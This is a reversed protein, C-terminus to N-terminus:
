DYVDCHFLFEDDCNLLDNLVYNMRIRVDDHERADDDDDGSGNCSLYCCVVYHMHVRVYDGDRVDDDDGRNCCM